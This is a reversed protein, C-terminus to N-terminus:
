PSVGSVTWGTGTGLIGSGSVFATGNMLWIAVRGDVNEWVIDALGDGNMDQVRKASWGGGANLIQTTQTPVLGNMLYIAARGDTHLFFLDAKGDGNFDGTRTVSWGTGAGLLGSGSAMTTGNMLWVAISGDANQWLLDSKGDGNFDAAHTVTWGTGANLIQQTSKVTLGDMLWIAVRGDTHQWVLDAKGDGDFDGTRIVSWGSGAGILTGGSKMALGDMLWAAITGDANQFVLDAKGDGDLDPTQTVSWGGGANLIQQTSTTTAGNMLYLAIRGDTHQWVLDSKGDGNFDAVRAVTWGTGAGIIEQTATATVGDMLYIAQRGDANRWLLDASGNGNFDPVRKAASPPPPQSAKWSQLLARLAEPKNVPSNAGSQIKQNAGHCSACVRVEGPQFTVWVRERVVPEGTVDTSQWALARRAPVFAASSGDLAIKVSGAPGGPNPLNPVNPAHLPQAIVRRGERNDYGRIVDGQLIQFNAVDYVKGAGGLTQVGGPVRLNFPQLKDGRDRTTHDRTIILALENTTLWNRFTTENVGVETFVDRESPELPAAPRSPRTRAVVEVAEIEWLPGNFSRLEDPSWWTVSKVIGATLTAGAEYLGTGVNKNLQKLRFDNMLNPTLGSALTHSSVLEGNSLPLPNRYRGGTTGATGTIATLAMLDANTTPSGNLKFIQGSALTAFERTYVSFFTGPTAPDERLQFLGTDMGVSFNNAHLNDISYDSLAADNAFSKILYGFSLEHRGIHNLTEEGTGDENMQWPTFQNFRHGNVPGNTPSMSDARPEPFMESRALHAAGPAESAYNFSGYTPTEADQDAQQDRQLHDWRTFIVRGFADISPSFAGSPTHNLLRLNGTAPNLSWIGTVTPTSEYEDAQPYLHAQGNFPRDSTFLIRDDTGYFPSVNNYGAPQNPVKTITATQGQGLGTVEYLQWYFTLQAYQVAPAGVLMSFVAKNASWHVSPERVAISTAGQLGGTLGFGAEQTLNRLSGDPYRIMLDGGRVVQDPTTMHNAFTSARGAFDGLSPVQTVFLIPNSPAASSAASICLLALFACGACLRDLIPLVSTLKATM